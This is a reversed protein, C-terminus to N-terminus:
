TAALNRAAIRLVRPDPLKQAALMERNVARQDLCRHLAEVRLVAGVLRRAAAAITAPVEM